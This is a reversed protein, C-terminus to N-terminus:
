VEKLQIPLKEWYTSVKEVGLSLPSVHCVISPDRGSSPTIKALVKKSCCFLGISVSEASYYKNHIRINTTQGCDSAKNEHMNADSGM